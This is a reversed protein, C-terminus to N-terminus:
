QSVRNCPLVPPSCGRKVNYRDFINNSATNKDSGGVLDVLSTGGVAAFKSRSKQRGYASLATKSLLHKSVNILILYFARYNACLELIM